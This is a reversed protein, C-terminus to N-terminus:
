LESAISRNSKTFAALAPLGGAFPGVNANPISSPPGVPPSSFISSPFCCYQSNQSEKKYKEGGGWGGWGSLCVTPAVACKTGNKTPQTQVNRLHVIMSSRKPALNVMSNQSLDLSLSYRRVM